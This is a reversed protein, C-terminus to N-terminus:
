NIMIEGKYCTPSSNKKEMKQPNKGRKLAIKANGSSLGISFFSLDDPM